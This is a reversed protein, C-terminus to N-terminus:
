MRKLCLGIGITNFRKDKTHHATMRQLDTRDCEVVTGVRDHVHNACRVSVFILRAKGQYRVLGAIFHHHFIQRSKLLILLGTQPLLLLPCRQYDFIMTLLLLLLLLLLLQMLLSIINDEQM